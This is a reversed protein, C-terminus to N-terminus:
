GAGILTWGGWVASSHGRAILARQSNNLARGIPEGHSLRSHLESALEFASEDKVPWLNAVVSRAGAALFARALGDSGALASARGNAGSCSSLFVTVGRLDWREIEPAELPVVQGVEALLLAAGTRGAGLAHGVYHILWPHKALQTRLEARTHATNVCKYREAITRVEDTLHLLSPLGPLLSGGSSAGEILLACSSRSRVTDERTRWLRLSPTVEVEFRAVIPSNNGPTPLAGFPVEFLNADPALILRRTDGDLRDGFLLRSLQAASESSKGSRIEAVATRVLIALAAQGIPHRVLEVGSRALRWVLLEDPLALFAYFQQDHISGSKPNLEKSTAEQELSDTDATTVEARWNDLLDLAEANQGADVLLRVLQHHLAERRIFFLDRDSLSTFAQRERSSREIATRLENEAEQVSGLRRASEARVSAALLAAEGLTPVLPQSKVLEAAGAPDEEVLTAALEVRGYSQAHRALAPDPITRATALARKFTTIAVRRNGAQAQARALVLQADAVYIPDQSRMAEEISAGAILTAVLSYGASSALRVLGTLAQCRRGADLRGQAAHTAHQWAADTRGLYEYLDALLSQVRAERPEDGARQFSSLARQYLNLSALPRGRAHAVLGALWDFQAGTVVSSTGQSKALATGRRLQQESAALDDQLYACSAGTLAALEAGPHDLLAFRDTADISDRRCRQLSQERYALRADAYRLHAVALKSRAPGRSARAIAVIETLLHDRHRDEYSAAISAAKKLATQAEATRGALIAGAWSPLISELVAREDSQADATTGLSASQELSLIRQHAETVWDSSSDIELYRRWTTLAQQRLGLAELGLAENFLWEASPPRRRRLLIELGEAIAGPNQGRLGSGIRSAALDNDVSEGDDLKRALRLYQDARDYQKDLLHSLGLAHFTCATPNLEAERQLKIVVKLLQRTQSLPKSRQRDALPAYPFSTLRGQEPRAGLAAERLADLLDCGPRKVGSNAVGLVVVLLVVARVLRGLGRRPGLGKSTSGPAARRL